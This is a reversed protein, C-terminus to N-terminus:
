QTLAERFLAEYRRVIPDTSYNEVIHERAMEGMRQRLSPDELLRVIASAIRESDGVPVLLGQLGNEVLQRNAPIDSVVSAVGTSMAEALACSFGEAPSVLAFVKAIKLWQCVEKPDVRGAFRIQNETLGLQKAKEALSDRIPGDGVLVLLAGAARSVVLAFAELLSGLGKEPALRGSYM